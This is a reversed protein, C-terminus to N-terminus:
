SALPHEPERREARRLGVWRAGVLALVLPVLVVMVQAAVSHTSISATTTLVVVNGVAGVAAAASVTARAARATERAALRGRLLVALLALVVLVGMTAIGVLAVLPGLVPARFPLDFLAVFLPFVVEFFFLYSAVVAVPAGVVGLLVMRTIDRPARAYGGEEVTRRVFAEVDGGILARPDRGDADAALLDARVEALVTDRDARRVRHRRLERDIERLLDDATRPPEPM